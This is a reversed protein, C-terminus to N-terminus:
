AAGGATLLSTALLRAIVFGLAAQTALRAGRHGPLLAHAAGIGVLCWVLVVVTM